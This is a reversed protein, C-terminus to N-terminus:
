LRKWSVVYKKGCIILYEYLVKDNDKTTHLEPLLRALENEVIINDNTITKIYYTYYSTTTYYDSQKPPTDHRQNQHLVSNIKSVTITDTKRKGWTTAVVNNKKTENSKEFFISVSLLCCFVVIIRRIGRREQYFSNSSYCAISFFLVFVCLVVTLSPLNNILMQVVSMESDNCNLIIQDIIKKM